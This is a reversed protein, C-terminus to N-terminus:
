GIINKLSQKIARITLVGAMAKKYDVPPGFPEEVPEIVDSVIKGVERILEDNIKSGVLAEEAKVIKVPNNTAGGIAIGAEKVTGDYNLSLNVATSVIAFDGTRKALKIFYGSNKPQPIPIQIETLIEDEKLSTQLPGLFFDKASITRSGSLNRVIFRANYALMVAPLNNGPFNYCINGGITGWNRVIPDAINKVAEYLLPYKTKILDSDELDVYRTLAGIKLYGDSENIFSLSPINNIDIVYKPSIIRLKMAIILSQGGALIKAGDKYYKSLLELVEDMNLPSFYEFSAPYM